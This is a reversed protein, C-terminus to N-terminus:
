PNVEMVNRADICDKKMQNILEEVSEFKAETRLFRHFEISVATGYLDQGPYDLLHAEISFGADEITPRNGVSIACNFNGFDTKAKGAYIGFGAIVQKTLLALNITPIGWKRALQQGKMVVGSALFPEGLLENAREVKGEEILNRIQTSSIRERNNECPSVITTPLHNSLWEGNGERNKGFAFDHGVVVQKSNLQNILVNKLFEDRSQSSFAEDFQALICVDVDLKEIRRIKEELPLLENPCKEPALVAMPHRDFTFLVCPNQEKRAIKVAASIVARHGLHVGDFVGICVTSEPLPRLGELGFLTRMQRIKGIPSRSEGQHTSDAGHLRM